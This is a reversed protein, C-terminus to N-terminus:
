STVLLPAIHKAVRELLLPTLTLKSGEPTEERTAFGAEVLADMRPRFFPNSKWRKAVPSDSEMIVIGVEKLLIAETWPRGLSHLAYLVCAAAHELEAKGLTGTLPPMQVLFLMTAEPPEEVGKTPRYGYEHLWGDLNDSGSPEGDLSDVFGDVIQELLENRTLTEQRERRASQVDLKATELKGQLEVVQKALTTGLTRERELAEHVETENPM